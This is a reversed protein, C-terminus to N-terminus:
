VPSSSASLSLYGKSRSRWGTGSWCRIAQPDLATVQDAQGVSRVQAVIEDFVGWYPRPEAPSGSVRVVTTELTSLLEDILATKGIGPDGEIV